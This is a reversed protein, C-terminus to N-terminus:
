RTVGDQPDVQDACNIPAEHGCKPCIGVKQYGWLTVAMSGTPIVFAEAAFSKLLLVLVVVFVVTEVVERGSDSRRTTPESHGWFRNWWGRVGPQQLSATGVSPAALPNSPAAAPSRPPAESAARPAF